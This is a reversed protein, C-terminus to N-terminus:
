CNCEKLLKYSHAILCCIQSNKLCNWNDVIASYDSSLNEDAITNQQDGTQTVSSSTSTSFTLNTDYSYIYLVDSIIDTQFTYNGSALAAASFYNLITELDGSGSYTFTDLGITIDFQVADEDNRGITFSYAYTVDDTFSNYCYFSELYEDVIILSWEADKCIKGIKLKESYKYALDKYLCQIYKIHTTLCDQTLIM